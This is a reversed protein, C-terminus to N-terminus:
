VNGRAPLEPARLHHWETAQEFARAARLVIEEGFPPGVIQLGIPMGSADVGCPLVIAPLGALNISIMFVDSLYM